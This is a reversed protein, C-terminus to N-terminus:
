PQNLSATKVTYNLQGAKKCFRGIGDYVFFGILHAYYSGKLAMDPWLHNLKIRCNKLSLWATLITILASLM